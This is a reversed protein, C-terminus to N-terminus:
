LWRGKEQQREDKFRRARLIIRDLRIRSSLRGIHGIPRESKALSFIFEEYANLKKKLFKNEELAENKLIKEKRARNTLFLKIM